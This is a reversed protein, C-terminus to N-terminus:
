QGRPSVDQFINRAAKFNQTTCLLARRKSDINIGYTLEREIQSSPPNAPGSTDPCNTDLRMIYADVLAGFAIGSVLTDSSLDELLKQLEDKHAATGNIMAAKHASPLPRVGARDISAASNAQTYM